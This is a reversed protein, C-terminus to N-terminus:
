ACTGGGHVPDVACTLLPVSNPYPGLTSAMGSITIEGGKARVRSRLGIVLKSSKDTGKVLRRPIARLLRGGQFIVLRVNIPLSHRIVMHISSAGPLPVNVRLSVKPPVYSHVYVFFTYTSTNSANDSLSLTVQHFGSTRWTFSGEAGSASTAGPTTKQTKIGGDSFLWSASGWDIGSGDDASGTPNFTYAKGVGVIKAPIQVAIAPPTVDRLRVSLNVTPATAIGTPTTSAKTLSAVRILYTGQDLYSSATATPSTESDSGARGCAIDKTLDSQSLITTIPQYQSVDSTSTSVQVTLVAPELITVSYWLSDYTPQSSACSPNSGDPVNSDEWGGAGFGPGIPYVQPAGYLQSAPLPAAGSAQSNPPTLAFASAPFAVVALLALLLTARRM